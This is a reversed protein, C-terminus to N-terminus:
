MEKLRQKRKLELEAASMQTYDEKIRASERKLTKIYECVSDKSKCKETNGNIIGAIKSIQNPDFDDHFFVLDLSKEDTIKEKLSKYFKLNFDTVFDSESVTNDIFEIDNPNNYLYYLIGEEARAAKPYKSIKPDAKDIKFRSDKLISNWQKTDERAKNKIYIRKVTNKIVENAINMEKAIKGIYVERKISDDIESIVFCYKNIYEGKQEPDTLDYKEKLDKLKSNIVSQSQELLVAFRGAGYRKIFEDPDKAGEMNLAKTKIGAGELLKYARQTANRGASDSDYAIIVKDTYRSIIRSQEQTLATGLTAITNEFGAQNITIVDMYGEALILYDRKTGKAFNMSFLNKSKKFLLTDSSNLYKPQSDNLIRGGFAIVRGRIDIIPFIVRGRFKDYYNGKSSKIALDAAAAEECSFGHNILENLLGDWSDFAYGLGYKVITEKKIGRNLLYKLGENGEKKLNNFFIKAATKNIELLRSRRESTLDEGKEDSIEMGARSALFKVAEAYELNEIKEIFTIVDGGEHCGFCYFSQTNEYIVMSPAKELHFPCLCKKNRGSNKVKVYNSMVSLIDNRDKLETIFRESYM